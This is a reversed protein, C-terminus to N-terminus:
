RPSGRPRREASVDRVDVPRAFHSTAHQDRAEIEVAIVRDPWGIVGDLKHPLVRARGGADLDRADFLAASGDLYTLPDGGLM